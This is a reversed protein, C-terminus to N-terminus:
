VVEASLDLTTVGTKSEMSGDAISAKLVEFIQLLEAAAAASPSSTTNSGAGSSGLGGNSGGGSGSSGSGPMSSDGGVAANSAQIAASTNALFAAQQAPDMTALLAATERDVNNSTDFTKEPLPAAAIVPDELILYDLIVSGPVIRVVQLPTHPLCPKM